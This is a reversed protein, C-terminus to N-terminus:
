NGSHIILTNLTELWLLSVSPCLNEFGKTPRSNAHFQQTGTLDHLSSASLVFGLFASSGVQVQKQPQLYLVRATNLRVEQASPLFSGQALGSFLTVLGDQVKAM